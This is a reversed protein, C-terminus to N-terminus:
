IQIIGVKKHSLYKIKNYYLIHQLHCSLVLMGHINVSANPWVYM